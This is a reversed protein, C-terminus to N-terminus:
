QGAMGKRLPGFTWPRRGGIRLIVPAGEAMERFQSAETTFILRDTAGSSFRSLTFTKKGIRLEPLADAVPFPRTSVVEIEVAAGRRGSLGGNVAAGIIRISAIENVETRDSARDESQGQVATRTRIAGADALAAQPAPARTLRVNGLYISSSETRDFIFRVGQFHALPVGAFASLPIRVTQFVENYV